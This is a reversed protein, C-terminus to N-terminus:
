SRAMNVKRVANEPYPDEHRGHSGQLSNSPDYGLHALCIGQVREMGCLRWKDDPRCFWYGLELDLRDIVERQAFLMPGMTGTHNSPLPVGMRDLQEGGWVELPIGASDWGWGHDNSSWHRVTTLPDKRLHDLNDQM